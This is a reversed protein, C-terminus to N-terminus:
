VDCGLGDGDRDRDLGDYDPGTLRIPKYESPIEGCDLDPNTRSLPLNAREQYPNAVPQPAPEVPAVVPQVPVPAPELCQYDATSRVILRGLPM